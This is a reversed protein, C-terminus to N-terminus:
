PRMSSPTRTGAAARKPSPAGIAGSRSAERTASAASATARAGGELVRAIVRLLPAREPLRDRLLLRDGELEGVHRDLDVGHAQEGPLGGPPDVAAQRRCPFRHERLVVRRARRELDGVIRHLDQAAVAVDAVMRDLEPQAVRPAKRREVAEGDSSPAVFMISKSSDSAMTLARCSDWMTASCIIRGM